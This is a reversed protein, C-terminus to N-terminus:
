CNRWYGYICNRFYNPFNPFNYWQATQTGRPVMVQSASFTIEAASVALRVSNRLEAMVDASEQGSSVQVANSTEAVSSAAALALLFLLPRAERNM